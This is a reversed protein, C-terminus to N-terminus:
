ESVSVVVTVVGLWARLSVTWTFPFPDTVLLGGPILLQVAVQLAVYLLPVWTVRVAVGAEPDTNVPQLPPPHWPVPLQTTVTVAAVVLTVAV